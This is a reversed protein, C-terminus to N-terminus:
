TTKTYGSFYFIPHTRSLLLYTAVCLNRTLIEMIIIFLYSRHTYIFVLLFLLHLMLITYFVYVGMQFIYLYHAVMSCIIHSLYFMMVIRCFYVYYVFHFVIGVLNLAHLIREDPLILMSVGWMLVSPVSVFCYILVNETIEYVMTYGDHFIPEM